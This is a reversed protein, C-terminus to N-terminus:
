RVLEYAGIRRGKDPSLVSQGNGVGLVQAVSDFEDDPQALLSEVERRLATDDKCASALYAARESEDPQELAGALTSKVQQWREPTM